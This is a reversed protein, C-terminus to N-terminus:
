KFFEQLGNYMDEDATNYDHYGNKVQYYVFYKEDFM